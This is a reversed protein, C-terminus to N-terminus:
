NDGDDKHHHGCCCHGEHGEEHDHHHGCCHEGHGEEHDHHHGCCCDDGECEDGCCCGDDSDIANFIDNLTHDLTSLDAEIQEERDLIKVQIKGNNIEDEGFILAVKAKRRNAKKFLSGLKAAKYPSEVSYGLGRLQESLIYGHEILDESLPMVYIDLGKDINDFLGKDKMLSYIREIGFAFGVGSDVEAKAGFNHLMNDYHGGGLLAGYEEGSVEFVIHGYYDLGRVLTDDIEYDIGEDSLISLTKYFRDEAEESLFDKSKPANKVLEQDEKVKCDLIRLPNLEYRSKCDDCMNPLLPEFYKKLAERYADRSAKDGLTNVKVKLGKFGLYNLVRMALAITEADAYANDVGINEVGAQIFQRYRGLQPREYRFAPGVYYLKLPSDFNFLMKNEVIARAVGATIEPRLTLSREGKDLFTYMEKRVVDSGEGTSRCFVETHELIPTEIPMYGYLEAVAQFVNKIYQYCKAEEAYIDHTGKVANLSM